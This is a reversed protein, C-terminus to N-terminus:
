RKTDKSSLLRFSFFSFVAFLVFHGFSVLLGMEEDIISFVLGAAFIAALTGFVM